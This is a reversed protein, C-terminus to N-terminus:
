NGLRGSDNALNADPKGQAYANSKSIEESSTAM